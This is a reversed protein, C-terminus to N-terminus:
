LTSHLEHLKRSIAAFGRLKECVLMSYFGFKESGKIATSKKRHFAALQSNAFSIADRRKVIQAKCPGIQLVAIDDVALGNRKSKGKKLNSLVIHM